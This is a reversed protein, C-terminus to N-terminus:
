NERQIREKNDQLHNMTEADPNIMADQLIRIGADASHATESDVIKASARVGVCVCVSIQSAQGAYPITANKVANKSSNSWFCPSTWLVWTDPGNGYLSSVGGHKWGCDSKRNASLITNHVPLSPQITEEV